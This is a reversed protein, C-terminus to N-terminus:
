VLCLRRSRRSHPPDHYALQNTAAQPQQRAANRGTSSHSRRADDGVCTAPLQACCHSWTGHLMIGDALSHTLSLLNRVTSQEISATNAPHFEYLGSGPTAPELLGHLVFTGDDGGDVMLRTQDAQLLRALVQTQRRQTRQRSYPYQQRTFAPLPQTANARTSSRCALDDEQWFSSQSVSVSVAGPNTSGATAAPSPRWRDVFRGLVSPERLDPFSSRRGLEGSTGVSLSAQSMQSMSKPIPSQSPLLPRSPPPPPVPPLPLAPADHMVPSPPLLSPSLDPTWPPPVSELQAPMSMALRPSMLALENGPAAEPRTWSVTPGHTRRHEPEAGLSARAAARHRAAWRAASWRYLHGCAAGVATGAALAAQRLARGGQRVRSARANHTAADEAGDPAPRPHPPSAYLAPSSTGKVPGVYGTAPEGTAVAPETWAHRHSCMREPCCMRMLYVVACLLILSILSSFLALGTAWSLHLADFLDGLGFGGGSTVEDDIEPNFDEVCDEVVTNNCDCDCGGLCYCVASTSFTVSKNVVLYGVADFVLVDCFHDGAEESVVYIPLQLQIFSTIEREYSASGRANGHCIVSVSVLATMNPCNSYINALIFGNGSLAEFNPSGLALTMDRCVATYVTLDDANVSITISSIHQEVPFRIGYRSEEDDEVQAFGYPNYASLLNFPRKGANVLAQDALFFDRPQNNLCTGESVGCGGGKGHLYFALPEVGIKDCTSGTMDIDSKDVVLYTDMGDKTQEHTHWNDVTELIPALLTKSSMDRLQVPTAFDGGFVVSVAGDSTLGGRLHPGVELVGQCRFDAYEDPLEVTCDPSAAPVDDQTAHSYGPGVAYKRYISVYVKFRIHGPDFDYVGYWLEDSYRFCHASQQGKGFLGCDLNARYSDTPMGIGLQDATSCRCCFGQSGEVKKGGGDILWGCSPSSHYPSDKCGTKDGSGFLGGLLTQVPQAIEYPKNNVVGRYRLPYEISVSTKQVVIIFENESDSIAGDETRSQTLHYYEGGGTSGLVGLNLVMKRECNPELSGDRLCREIQGAAKIQAQVAPSLGMITFCALLATFWLM